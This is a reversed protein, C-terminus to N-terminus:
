NNFDHAKWHGLPSQLELVGVVRQCILGSGTDLVGSYPRKSKNLDM